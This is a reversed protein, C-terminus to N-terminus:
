APKEGGWGKGGSLPDKLQDITLVCIMKARLVIQLGHHLSFIQFLPHPHLTRFAHYLDNFNIGGMVSCNDFTHVIMRATGNIAIVNLFLGLEVRTTVNIILHDVSPQDIGITISSACFFRGIGSKRKVV